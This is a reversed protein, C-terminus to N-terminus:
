FRYSIGAGFTIQSELKLSKTDLKYALPSYSLNVGLSLHKKKVPPILQNKPIYTGELSTITLNPFQSRFFIEFDGKENKKLGTVASLGIEEKLDTSASDGVVTVVGTLKRYNGASYTTNLDIGAVFGSDKGNNFAQVPGLITDHLIIRAGAKEITVVKGKTNKVEEALSANVSELEEIRDTIFSKRNFELEANKSRTTRVADNLAAINVNLKQNAYKLDKNFSKEQILWYTLGLLSVILLCFGGLVLRKKDITM